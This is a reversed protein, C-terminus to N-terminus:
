SKRLIASKKRFIKACVIGGEFLLWMPVALTIQSIVDPPTLLMGLTFAAVVCYPRIEEMKEISVLDLAALVIVLIPIEFTIGFCLLMKLTFDLYSEMDPALQIGLPATKIFFSFMLPFVVFYAFAAGLYFLLTSSAILPLIWKKEHAYLAPAIFGWAEYLLWPLAIFVAVTLSLQLPIILPATLSTAIMRSGEPLQRLLPGALAHYLENSYFSLALFLLGLVLLARLLRRRLEILHGIWPPDPNPTTPNMTHVVPLNTCHQEVEAKLGLALNRAYALWRGLTRAARPLEKPGFALLAVIFIILLEIFSFHM